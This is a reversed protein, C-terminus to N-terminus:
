KKNRAAPDYPTLDQGIEEPQLNDMVGTSAARGNAPPRGKMAKATIEALAKNSAVVFNEGYKGGGYKKIDACSMRKLLNNVEASSPEEIKADRLEPPTYGQLWAIVKKDAITLM